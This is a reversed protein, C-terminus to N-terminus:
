RSSTTSVPVRALYYDDWSRRAFNFKKECSTGDGADGIKFLWHHALRMCQKEDTSRHENTNYTDSKKQNIQM